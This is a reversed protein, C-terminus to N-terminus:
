FNQMRVEYNCLIRVECNSEPIYAKFIIEVDAKTDSLKVFYAKECSILKLGKLAGTDNMFGTLLRGFLYRPGCCFVHIELNIGDMLIRILSNQEISVFDTFKCKLSDKEVCLQKSQYSVPHFMSIGVDEIIEETFISKRCASISHFCYLKFGILIYVGSLKTPFRKIVKRTKKNVDLLLRDNKTKELIIILKQQSEITHRLKFPYSSNLALITNRKSLSKVDYLKVTDYLGIFGGNNDLYQHYHMSAIWDLALMNDEHPKTRNDLVQNSPSASKMRFYYISTLDVFGYGYYQVKFLGKSKDNFPIDYQDGNTFINSRNESNKIPLFRLM